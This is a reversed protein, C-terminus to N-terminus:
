AIGGAFITRRDDTVLICPIGLAEADAAAQLEGALFLAKALVEAEVATQAFVTARLLDSRVPRGTTPDIVHHCEEGGRVWRRRDRGSTAIAGSEFGLTITGKATEVGVPWFWPLM